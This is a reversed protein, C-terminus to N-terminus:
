CQCRWYHGLPDTKVALCVFFGSRAYLLICPDDRPTLITTRIKGRTVSVRLNQRAQDSCNEPSNGRVIRDFNAVIMGKAKRPWSEFIIVEDFQKGKAKHMNMVVVGTEPKANTSFHEQVFAQRTIALANAYAGNNRWEQSLDHRLQAGRELLRINRVEEALGKLRACDGGQLIGRMARWDKDPDGTLALARAEAHVALMPVLISNKRIEKGVAQRALWEDYAKQLNEAESLDGKTPTDGGKGHFYNRLLAILHEFQRGDVNPQMLFAIIEAGLIAADLEIVAAHAIETMGAPPSRFIDSVLRTMKKTPVLIALSWGKRGSEVLRTRAAYTTM